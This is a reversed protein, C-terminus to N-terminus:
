TGTEELSSERSADSKCLGLRKYADFGSKNCAFVKLSPVKLGQQKVQDTLAKVIAAGPEFGRYGESIAIGLDSVHESHGRERFVGSNAM